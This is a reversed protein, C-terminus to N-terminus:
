DGREPERSREGTLTAWLGHRVHLRNEVDEVGLSDEAILEALRKEHRDEATGNLTVVGGSVELEIDTADIDPHTMLRDSIEEKIREDSRRYGKPGRGFFRGRRAETAIGAYPYERPVRYGFAEAVSREHRRPLDAEARQEDRDGARAAPNRSENPVKAETSANQEVQMCSDHVVSRDGDFVCQAISTSM